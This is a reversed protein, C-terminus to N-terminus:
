AGPRPEPWGQARYYTGPSEPHGTRASLYLAEMLASVALHRDLPAAARDKARSRVLDALSLLEHALFDGPRPRRDVTTGDVQSLVVEEDTLSAHLESSCHLTYQEAPGLDWAVRVVAMGGGAYRLVAAAADETEHAAGGVLRRQTSLVADVSNPLGRVAVLAELLTYGDSALAGGAAERLHLKWSGPAPAAASVRLESFVPRFERPWELSSWVHHAVYEWWSAVRYILGQKRAQAVVETAEAFSAALPPLRWVHLGQEVAMAALEADNRTSTALLAVQMGPQGLLVRADDFWPVDSAASPQPMGAQGRLQLPLCNEIADALVRCRAHDAVLGVQVPGASKQEKDTLRTTMYDGRTTV